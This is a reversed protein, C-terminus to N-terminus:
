YLFCWFLAGIRIRVSSGDRVSLTSCGEWEPVPLLIVTIQNNLSQCPFLLLNNKSQQKIENNNNTACLFFCCKALAKEKQISIDSELNAKMQFLIECCTHYIVYEFMFAATSPKWTQSCYLFEGAFYVM